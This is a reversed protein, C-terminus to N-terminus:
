CIKSRALDGNFALLLGLRKFTTLNSVVAWDKTLPIREKRGYHALKKGVSLCLLQSYANLCMCRQYIRVVDELCM